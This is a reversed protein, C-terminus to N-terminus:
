GAIRPAGVPDVRHQRRSRRVVCDHRRRRDAFPRDFRDGARWSRDSPPGRTPGPCYCDWGCPRPRHPTTSRRCGRRPRPTRVGRQGNGFAWCFSFFDSASARGWSVWAPTEDRPEMVSAVAAFTTTAVVIGLVWGLLFAGATTRPRPTYLLLIAPFIIPFPSAAIGLAIAAIEPTM